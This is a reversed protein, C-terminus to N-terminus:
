DDSLEKSIADFASLGGEYQDQLLRLSLELAERWAQRQEYYFDWDPNDMKPIPRNYWKHFAKM